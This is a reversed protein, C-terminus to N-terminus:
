IIPEARFYHQTDPPLKFTHNVPLNKWVPTCDIRIKMRLLHVSNTQSPSVWCLNVSISNEQLLVIRSWISCLFLWSLFEPIQLFCVAVMGLMCGQDQVKVSGDTEIWPGNRAPFFNRLMSATSTPRVSNKADFVLSQYRRLIIFRASLHSLVM